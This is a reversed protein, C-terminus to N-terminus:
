TETKSTSNQIGHVWSINPKLSLSRHHPILLLNILCACTNNQSAWVLLGQWYTSERLWTWLEPSNVRGGWPIISELFKSPVFFFFLAVWVTVRVAQILSHGECQKEVPFYPKSIWSFHSLLWCSYFSSSFCMPM